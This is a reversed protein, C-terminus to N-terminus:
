MVVFAPSRRAKAITALLKLARPATMSATTSRASSDSRVRHAHIMPAAGRGSRAPRRPAGSRLEGGAVGGRAGCGRRRADVSRRRGGRLAPQPRVTRRGDSRRRRARRRCRCPPSRPRRRAPRHRAGRRRARRPRRDRAHAAGRLVLRRRLHRDRRAPGRLGRLERARRYRAAPGRSGRRPPRGAPTRRVGRALRRRRSDRAHDGRRAGHPRPRTRRSDRPTFWPQGAYQRYPVYLESAVPLDLGMQRVDGVVGVVTLWESFGNDSIRLRRGVPDLDPWFQRAMAENVVVVPPTGVRDNAALHRGRRLPTGITQHYGGSVLRFNAEWEVGSEPARGEIEVGTTAGKWALPVGTTYAAATVGPLRGVRDLVTDYFATRREHTPYHQAPLVTRLSLVRAPEYGVNAYRLHYVTQVLLGAVVLLVLTLAVEAIVLAGRRRGAGTVVRAGGALGRGLGRAALHLAPAVGFLLGCGVAIAAAVAFGRADLSPAAFRVMGPPVLQALVALALQAIALGAALGFGCLVLSETVLQRVLRGHTAGLSGRLAMEPQRVGARALLLGAVNASGILLVAAIGGLMLELPRRAERALDDHLRVPTLRFGDAAEPLTPGLRRRLGEIYTRALDVSVDPKLRGVITLYNAGRSWQLPTMRMPVWLEVKPGLFQFRPPMVGVVAVREGDLRLDRGVIAPDGGFRGRWLEHSVIVVRPAAPVEDEATFGRGAAPAVGLVDFFGATVRRGVIKEPSTGDELTTGLEAVAALSAFAENHEALLRYNIPAADPRRAPDEGEWVVVLRDPDPYPLPRLLVADVVSFVATAAGIAIGITLVVTVALGRDVALRRVAHHVDRRADELWPISRAERHLEKTREVGGLALRAARRAADPAMGRRRHEDELLALHADIERALDDDARRPRLLTTLRTAFRRLGSMM